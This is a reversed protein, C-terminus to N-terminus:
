GSGSGLNPRVMAEPRVIRDFEEASLLGLEVAAEKLTKGTQYAYKAIRAANDYGIYPNLATVLMLSQEVYQRLRERNPEIGVACYRNFMRCTDSLLRVSQLFNYIIVPKYVNLEFAGSAGAISITVDNGLVQVAVMTMAESQTPNVKGPMISSGPQVEPLQLEGLGARPGSGMWRIDNAIKMLSVAVTRLCGSAMVVNDLTAQMCFHNDTEKVELGLERSLLECVRRAFEPHANIGTGVATGGLAVESLEQQAYRLRKIGREVQGAYGLFEQGLRIPTADQLHTRGTKIIPWFEEAKRLLAQRLAELAPILRREIGVLAALHLATPIVDNSSQCLNVHDNPHVLRSGREGGLLETARNAIVENANMNTSTGSGTQFVDVVFQEDWRGEAVERAAQQIAEALRPDLLGLEANVKAAAWKILGLMRVFPRPMPQGSVPFNLVARQTSAGYYADAPVEMTGMSDREIRTKPGATM